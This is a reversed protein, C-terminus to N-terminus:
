PLSVLLTRSTTRSTAPSKVPSSALHLVNNVASLSSMWWPSHMSTSSTTAFHISRHHSSQSSSPLYCVLNFNCTLLCNNTSRSSATSTQLSTTATSSRPKSLTLCSRSAAHSRHALSANPLYAVEKVGNESDGCANLMDGILDPERELALILVDHIRNFLSQQAEDRPLYDPQQLGYTLSARLHAGLKARLLSYFVTWGEPSRILAIATTSPRNLDGSGPCSTDVMHVGSMPRASSHSISLGHTRSDRDIGEIWM